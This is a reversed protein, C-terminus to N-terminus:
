ADKRGVFNYHSYMPPFPLRGAARELALLRDFVAHSPFLRFYRVSEKRIGAPALTKELSGATLVRENGYLVHGNGSSAEIITNFGRARLLQMQLLPNWANAESLAVHGGPRLLAGIKEVVKARPELHHFAQEMWIIDFGDDDDFDLLSVTEIRCDLDRRVRDRLVELRESAAATCHAFVDIGTVRAGLMAFWLTETGTGVGVELVRPRGLSAILAEMERVQSRYWFRLRESRLGRFRAYYDDVLRQNADSLPRDALWAALFDSINSAEYASREM